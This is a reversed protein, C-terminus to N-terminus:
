KQVCSTSSSVPVAPSCGTLLLSRTNRQLM